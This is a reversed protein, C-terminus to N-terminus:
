EYRLNKKVHYSYKKIVNFKEMIEDCDNKEIQNINWMASHVNDNRKMLLRKIRDINRQRISKSEDIDFDFKDIEGLMRVVSIREDEKIEPVRHNKKDDITIEGNLLLIDLYTLAIIDELISIGLVYASLYEEDNLHKNFTDIAKKYGEYKESQDTPRM